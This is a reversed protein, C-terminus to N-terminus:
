DWTFPDYDIFSNGSLSFNEKTWPDSIGYQIADKESKFISIIGGATGEIVGYTLAGLIRYTLVEEGGLFTAFSKSGKDIGSILGRPIAFVPGLVCGTTIGTIQKSTTEITEKDIITAKAPCVFSVITLLILIIFLNKKM